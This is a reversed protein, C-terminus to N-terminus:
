RSAGYRVSLVFTSSYPIYSMRWAAEIPAAALLRELVSRAPEDAASLEILERRLATSPPHVAVVDRGSRARLVGAIHQLWEDIRRKEPALTVTSDLVSRYERVVGDVDKVHRPVVQPTAGQVVEFM